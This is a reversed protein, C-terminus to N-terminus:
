IPEATLRKMLEKVRLAKIYTCNTNYDILNDYLKELDQYSFVNKDLYIYRKLQKYGINLFNSVYRHSLNNKMTLAKLISKNTKM